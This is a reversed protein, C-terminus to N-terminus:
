EIDEDPEIVEIGSQRLTQARQSHISAAALIMRAPTVGTV